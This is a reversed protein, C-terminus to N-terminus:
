QEGKIDEKRSCLRIPNFGWNGLKTYVRFVGDVIVGNTLEDVAFVM